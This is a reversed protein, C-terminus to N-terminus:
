ANRSINITAHYEPASERAQSLKSKASQAAAFALSGKPQGFKSGSVVSVSICQYPILLVLPGGALPLSLSFSLSLFVSPTTRGKKMCCRKSKVRVTIKKKVSNTETEEEPWVLKDVM